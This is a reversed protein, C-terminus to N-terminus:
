SGRAVRTCPTPVAKGTAPICRVHSRKGTRIAYDVDFGIYGARAARIHLSANMAFSRSRMKRSSVSSRRAVLRETGIRPGALTVTTGAVLHTLGFSNVLLLSRGARSTVGADISDDFVLPAFPGPCGNHNSDWKGGAVKKCTDDADPIADGDTDPPANTSVMAGNSADSVNGAEDYARVTYTYATSALLGHDSYAAGTAVGVQNGNRFIRYGSVGVNDTSAAWALDVDAPSTAKGTLNAPISPPTQDPAPPPPPTTTTPPVTSTPPPTFVLNYTLRNGSAADDPVLDNGPGATANTTTFFYFGSTAALDTRNLAFTLTMTPGDFTGDFTPTTALSFTGAACRDVGYKPFDGGFYRLRYESGSCGGGPTTPNKDSDVYVAIGEDGLATRNSFLLKVTILGADDNAVTIQTVDAAMGADGTPDPYPQSGTAGARDVAISSLLGAVALAAV